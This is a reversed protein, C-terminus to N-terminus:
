PMCTITFSSCAGDRHGSTFATIPNILFRARQWAFWAGNRSCPAMWWRTRRRVLAKWSVCFTHSCTYSEASHDSRYWTQLKFQKMKDGAVCLTSKISNQRTYYLLLNWGNNINCLMSNAFNFLTKIKSMTTTTDCNNTHTFYEPTNKTNHTSAHELFQM